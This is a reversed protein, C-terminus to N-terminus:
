ESGGECIRPHVPDWMTYGYENVSQCHPCRPEYDPNRKLLPSSNARDSNNESATRKEDPDQKATQFSERSAKSGCSVPTDKSAERWAEIEDSGGAIMANAFENWDSADGQGGGQMNDECNAEFAEGVNPTTEVDPVALKLSQAEPQGTVM